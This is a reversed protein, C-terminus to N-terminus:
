AGKDDSDEEQIRRIYHVQEELMGDQRGAVLLILATFIISLSDTAYFALANKFGYGLVLSVVARGTQMLLLVSVGYLMALFVNKRMREERILKAIFIGGLAFLNGIVYVVYQVPSSKYAMCMALAGVIAHIAGFWKWRVMVISTVGAVASVTYLQEPFWKSAALSILVEVVALIVAFAILDFAKYQSLSLHPKM